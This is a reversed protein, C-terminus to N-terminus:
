ASGRLLTSAVVVAGAVPVGANRLVAVTRTLTWGSTAVDDVVVIPRPDPLDSLVRSTARSLRFAGDDSLREIGTMRGRDAAHRGVTVARCVTSGRLHFSARRALDLTHDFGRARRANWTSPVPVLIPRDLWGGWGV